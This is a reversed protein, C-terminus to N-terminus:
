GGNHRHHILIDNMHDTLRKNLVRDEVKLVAIDRGYTAIEREIDKLTDIAVGLMLLAIAGIINGLTIGREAVKDRVNTEVEAM